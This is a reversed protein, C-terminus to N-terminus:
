ETKNVIALIASLTGPAYGEVWLGEVAETIEKERAAVAKDAKDDSELIHIYQAHNLAAEVAQAAFQDVIQAFSHRLKNQAEEAQELTDYCVSLTNHGIVLEGLGGDIGCWILDEVAKLAAESPVDYGAREDTLTRPTTTPENYTMPEPSGM